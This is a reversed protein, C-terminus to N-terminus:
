WRCNSAMRGRGLVRAEETSSCMKESFKRSRVAAAPLRDPLVLGGTSSISSISRASSSNSAKQEFDQRIELDGDGLSPVIVLAVM